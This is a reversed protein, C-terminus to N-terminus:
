DSLADSYTYTATPTQNKGTGKQACYFTVCYSGDKEFVYAYFKHEGAKRDTKNDVDTIAIADNQNNEDLFDQLAHSLKAVSDIKDGANWANGEAPASLTYDIMFNRFDAVLNQAETKATNNTQKNLQSVTVGAVTGALVAM